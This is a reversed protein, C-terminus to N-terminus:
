TNEVVFREQSSAPPLPCAQLNNDLDATISPTILATNPADGNNSSTVHSPAPFPGAAQNLRQIAGSLQQRILNLQEGAVQMGVGLDQEKLYLGFYAVYSSFSSQATHLPVQQNPFPRSRRLVRASM